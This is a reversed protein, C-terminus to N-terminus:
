QAQGAIVPFRHYIHIIDEVIVDDLGRGTRGVEALTNDAETKGGTETDVVKRCRQGVGPYPSDPTVVAEPSVLAPSFPAAAGRTEQGPRAEQAGSLLSDTLLIAPVVLIAILCLAIVGAALRDRGGLVHAIWRFVPYLAVAVIYFCLGLPHKNTNVHM